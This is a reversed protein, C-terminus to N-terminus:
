FGVINIQNQSSKCMEPKGASFPFFHIPFKRGSFHVPFFSFNHGFFPPFLPKKPALKEWKGICKEPRLKLLYIKWDFFHKKSLISFKTCLNILGQSFLRFNHLFHFFKCTSFKEPKKRNESPFKMNKGNKGPFNSVRSIHM